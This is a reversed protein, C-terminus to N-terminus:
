PFHSDDTLDIVKPRKSPRNTATLAHGRHEDRDEEKVHERKISTRPAVPLSPATVTTGGPLGQLFTTMHDKFSKFESINANLSRLQEYLERNEKELVQIRDTEAQESYLRQGLQTPEEDNNRVVQAESKVTRTCEQATQRLILSVQTPSRSGFVSRVNTRAIPLTRQDETTHERIEPEVSTPVPSQPIIGLVQLHM